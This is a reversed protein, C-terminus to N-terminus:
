SSPLTPKLKTGFWIEPILGLVTQHSLATMHTSIYAKVKFILSVTALYKPHSLGTTM